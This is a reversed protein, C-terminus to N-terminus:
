RFGWQLCFKLGKKIWKWGGGIWGQRQRDRSDCGQTLDFGTDLGGPPIIRSADSTLRNRNQAVSSGERLCIAEVWASATSVGNTRLPQLGGSSRRGYPSNVLEFIISLYQWKRKRCM